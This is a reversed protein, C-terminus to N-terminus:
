DALLGLLVEERLPKTFHNDFGAELCNKVTDAGGYGTVAVMRAGALTPESRLRRAVDYGDLRPLGLDVLLVEPRFALAQDIASPGDNAVRVDHGLAQLHGRLVAALDANDEAVLVRKRRHHDMKDAKHLGNTASRKEESREGQEAQAALPMSITFVSGKGEGDSHGRLTGGHLEVIYRALTLGIGLGRDTRDPSTALQTFPMFIRSLAEPAIGIGDDRVYLFAQAQNRRVEVEVHGGPPTYKAANAILNVIVQELRTADAEVLLLRDPMQVALAHKRELLLPRTSEVAKDIVDCLVVRERRLTIKGHTVRSVDLLDDVLRTLRAGQREVVEAVRRSAPDTGSRMRLTGAAMVVAALPNRLEHGLMALFEDKRKDAEQTERYLRANDIALAARRALETALAADELDFRTGPPRVFTMAGLTHGRARLPVCLYAGVLKLLRRLGTPDVVLGALEGVRPGNLSVTHGSRIVVASGHSAFLDIPLDEAEGDARAFAARYPSGAEDALDVACYSGIGPVAVKAASAVTTELDLTESLHAGATAIQDFRRRAADAERRAVEERLARGGAEVESLQRAAAELIATQCIRTGHLDLTSLSELHAVFPRGDVSREFRISCRCVERARFTELLHNTLLYRDDDVALGVLSTGILGDARINLMLAARSNGELIRGKYDVAVLGIPAHEYLRVARREGLGPEGASSRFRRPPKAAVEAKEPDADDSDRV